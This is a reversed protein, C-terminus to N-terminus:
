FLPFFCNCYPASAPARGSLSQCGTQAQLARGLPWKENWDLAMRVARRHTNDLWISLSLSQPKLCNRLSSAYQARAYQAVPQLRAAFKRRTGVVSPWPQGISKTTSFNPFNNTGFQPSGAGNPPGARSTPSLNAASLTHISIHATSHQARHHAPKHGTCTRGQHWHAATHRQLNAALPQRWRRAM